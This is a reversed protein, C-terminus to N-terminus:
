GNIVGRVIKMIDCIFTIDYETMEQLDCVGDELYEYYKSCKFLYGCKLFTFFYLHYVDDLGLKYSIKIDYTFDGTVVPVKHVEVKLDNVPKKELLNSIALYIKKEM